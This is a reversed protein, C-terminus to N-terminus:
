AKVDGVTTTKEAGVAEAPAAQNPLPKNAPFLLVEKINTQDTLFMVLRFSPLITLKSNDPFPTLLSPGTSVSDGDVLLLFVTSSLTSRYSFSLDTSSSLPSPPLFSFARLGLRLGAGGWWEAEELLGKLPRLESRALTAPSRALSATVPSVLAPAPDLKTWFRGEWAALFDTGWGATLLIVSSSFSSSFATDLSDVCPPLPFLLLFSGSHVDVPEDKKRKKAAEEGLEKQRRVDEESIGEKVWCLTAIAGKGDIRGRWGEV